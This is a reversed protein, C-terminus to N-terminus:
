QRILLKVAWISQRAFASVDSISSTPVIPKVRNPLTAAFKNVIEGM